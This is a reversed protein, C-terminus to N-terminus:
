AHQGRQKLWPLDPFRNAQAILEELSHATRMDCFPDDGVGMCQVYVLLRKWQLRRVALALPEPNTSCYWGAVVIFDTVNNLCRLWDSLSARQRDNFTDADVCWRLRPIQDMLSLMLGTGAAVLLGRASRPFEILEIGGHVRGIYDAADESASPPLPNRWSLKCQLDSM